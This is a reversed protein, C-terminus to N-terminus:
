LLHHNVGHNNQSKKFDVPIDGGLFEICKFGNHKQIFQLFYEDDFM